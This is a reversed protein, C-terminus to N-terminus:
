SNAPIGTVDFLLNGNANSALPNPRDYVLYHVSQTKEVFMGSRVSIFVDFYIPFIDLLTLNTSM